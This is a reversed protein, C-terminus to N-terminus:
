KLINPKIFSILVRYVSENYNSEMDLTIANDKLVINLRPEALKITEKAQIDSMGRSVLRKELELRVTM